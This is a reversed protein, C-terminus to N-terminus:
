CVVPYPACELAAMATFPNCVDFVIVKAGLAMLECFEEWIALGISATSPM